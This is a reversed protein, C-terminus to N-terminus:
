VDGRAVGGKKKKNAFMDGHSQIGMEALLDDDDSSDSGFGSDSSDDAAPRLKTTAANTRDTKKVAVEAVPARISAAARKAQQERNQAHAVAPVAPM